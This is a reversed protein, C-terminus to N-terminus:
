WQLGFNAVHLSTRNNLQLDYNAFLSAHRCFDLAFGGGLVIWDRGPGVGTSVGLPGGMSFIVSTTADLYEHM